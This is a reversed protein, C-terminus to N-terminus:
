GFLNGIADGVSELDEACDNCIQVKEGFVKKTKCIGTEGCIDCEGITCATLAFVTVIVLVLAIIKKM